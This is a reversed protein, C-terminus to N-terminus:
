TFLLQILLSIETQSTSKRSTTGNIIENDSSEDSSIEVAAKVFISPQESEQEIEEKKDEEFTKDESCEDLHESPTNTYVKVNSTRQSSRTEKKHRSFLKQILKKLINFM